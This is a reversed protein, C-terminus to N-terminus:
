KVPARYPTAWAAEYTGPTEELRTAYMALPRYEARAIFSAVMPVKQATEGSLALDGIKGPIRFLTLSRFVCNILNEGAQRCGNADAAISDPTAAFGDTVLVEGARAEFRAFPQSLKVSVALGGAYGKETVTRWGGPDALRTETHYSNQWNVCGQDSGPTITATCYSGDDITVDQYRADFWAQSDHFEANRTIAFTASGAAPNENWHKSSLPPLTTHPLQYTLGTLEYSGPDVIYIGYRSKNASMTQISGFLGEHLLTAQEGVKLLDDHDKVARWVLNATQDFRFSPYGDGGPTLSRFNAQAYKHDVNLMPLFVIAKGARLARKYLLARGSRMLDIQADYKKQAAKQENKFPNRFHFRSAKKAPPIPAGSVAAAIMTCAMYGLQDRSINEQEPNLHATFSAADLSADLDIRVPFADGDRQPTSTMSVDAATPKGLSLTLSAKTGHIVETTLRAGPTANVFQKVRAVAPSVEMAMGISWTSYTQGEVTTGQTMFNALCLDTRQQPSPAFVPTAGAADNRALASGTGLQDLAECMNASFAEPKASMGQPLTTSVAVKGDESAVVHMDFGAANISPLQSIVLEGQGHRVSDRGIKFGQAAAVHKYQDIADRPSLGPITRSTSFTLGTATDGGHTFNALCAETSRAKASVALLLVIAIWGAGRRRGHVLETQM